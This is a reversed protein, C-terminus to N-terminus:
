LPQKIYFPHPTQLQTEVHCAKRKFSVKIVRKPLCNKKKIRSILMLFLSAYTRYSALRRMLQDNGSFIESALCLAKIADPRSVRFRFSAWVHVNWLITLGNQVQASVSLARAPWTPQVCGMTM